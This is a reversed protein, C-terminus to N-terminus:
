SCLIHFDYRGLLVFSLDQLFIEQKLPKDFGVVWMTSFRNWYSRDLNEIFDNAGEELSQYKSFDNKGVKWNAKWIADVIYCKSCWVQSMFGRTKFNLYHKV